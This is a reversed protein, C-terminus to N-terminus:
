DAKVHAFMDEEDIADRAPKPYVRTFNQYPTLYRRAWNPLLGFGRGGGQSVHCASAEDWKEYFDCIDVRTHSPEINDLIAQVDIDQNRGMKRPDKGRLRTVTIGLQIFLKPINSYYLKQPSHPAQGTQYAPDSALRFAETTARQIAIHDPHGYVGYKNFTIVVQPRVKRIVEVVRRVIEQPKHESAYWLCAPDKSTESGMMGSDKYGFKFVQKFGLVKSAKDLEALRLDRVSNYGNLHEESVTGVDGDTACIYYVDVGQAVYKAILGGLGFSEDDPHAFAILLRYKGNSAPTM